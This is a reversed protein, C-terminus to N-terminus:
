APPIFSLNKNPGLNFISIDEIGRYDMVMLQTRPYHGSSLWINDATLILSDRKIENGVAGVDRSSSQHAM